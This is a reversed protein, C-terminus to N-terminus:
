GGISWFATKKLAAFKTDMWIQSKELGILLVPFVTFTVILALFVALVIVVGFNSLIPFPSSILASFGFITTM